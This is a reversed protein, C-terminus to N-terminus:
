AEFPNEGSYLKELNIKKDAFAVQIDHEVPKKPKPNVSYETELGKGTRNIKLDYDKPSGWDPDAVLNQIASMISSQTIQLIEINKSAYNYVVFAWFHKVRQPKGDVFKIDPTETFPTKSRVPKDENTWYEFGTIASSMVRFLNDGEQLKMYGSVTAPAQYGAPLFDNM